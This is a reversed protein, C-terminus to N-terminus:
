HRLSDRWCSIYRASITGSIRATAPTLVLRTSPPPRGLAYYTCGLCYWARASASDIELARQFCAVADPFEQAETHVLGDQIWDQATSNMLGHHQFWITRAIHITSLQSVRREPTKVLRASQAFRYGHEPVLLLSPFKLHSCIPESGVMPGCPGACYASHKFSYLGYAPANKALKRRQSKM